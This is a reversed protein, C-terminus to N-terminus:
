RTPTARRPRARHLLALRRSPRPPRRPPQRGPRRALRRAALDWTKGDGTLTLDVATLDCSHNGDRPGISSRSSTARGAGARGRVARGPGGEGGAGRGGRATQRTAGRRVELSWTVGNGCEPHAHQVKAASRPGRGVGPQALRRGRAPDPSPHMAVGHPKLNGPVRVHTDSSNAVMNPTEGPGWGNM